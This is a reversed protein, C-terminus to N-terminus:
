CLSRYYIALLECALIRKDLSELNYLLRTRKGNTHSSHYRPRRGPSSIFDFRSIIFFIIIHLMILVVLLIPLLNILVIAVAPHSIVIAHFPCVVHLTYIPPIQM